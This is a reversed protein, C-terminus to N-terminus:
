LNAWLSELDRRCVNSFDRLPDNRQRAWAQFDEPSLNPQAYRELIEKIVEEAGDVVAKSSSLRIRSLLSYSPLLHGPDRFNHQMADSLARASQAIFDSYLQERHFLQRAILDRRNENRHVIWAGVSSGLAGVISGGVAAMASISAPNLTEIIM